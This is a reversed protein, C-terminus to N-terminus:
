ERTTILLADKAPIIRRGGRTAYTKTFEAGLFFIQATYFVWVLILILSGAAGFESGTNTYKLYIGLLFKGLTFLLTTIFAGLWVDSWRIKADPLYKFIMAFLVTIMGTSVIFNLGFAIVDGGNFYSNILNSTASIAVTIALSVLLLFSVGLVMTFSLFRDKIMEMLGRDSRLKVHWVMNLGTQLAGFVGSAGFLLAMVGIIQSVISTTPNMAKTIMTRIQQESAPGLTASIQDLLESQVAEKGFFLGAVAICIVILPALSFTTYYALAASVFMINDDSWSKLTQKLISFISFKKM